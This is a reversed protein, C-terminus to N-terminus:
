RELGPVLALGDVDSFHRRNLTMLPVMQSLCCAAIWADNAPIIRGRRQCDASLQGWHRSVEADYPLVVISRLWRELEAVRQSGWGRAYAGKYFEGVTVFTVCV